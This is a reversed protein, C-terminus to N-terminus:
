FDLKFFSVTKSEYAPVILVDGVLCLDYVGNHEKIVDNDMESVIAGSSFCLYPPIFCICLDM